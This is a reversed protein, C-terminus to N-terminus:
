ITVQINKIKGLSILAFVQFVESFGPVCLIFCPVDLVFLKSVRRITYEFCFTYELFYVQHMTRDQGVNPSILDMCERFKKDM